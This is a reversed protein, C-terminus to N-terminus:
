GDNDIITVTARDPNAPIIKAPLLKLNLAFMFTENSEVTNDNMIPVEFEVRTQGPSFKIIYPGSVYDNGEGTLYCNNM